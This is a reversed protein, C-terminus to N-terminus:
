PTGFCTSSKSIGPTYTNQHMYFINITWLYSAQGRLIWVNQIRIYPSGTVHGQHLKATRWLLGYQADTLLWKGTPSTLRCHSATSQAQISHSRRMWLDGGKWHRNKANPFALLQLSGFRPQKCYSAVHKSKKHFGDYLSVMTLIFCFYAYKVHLNLTM